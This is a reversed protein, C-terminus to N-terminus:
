LCNETKMEQQIDALIADRICRMFKIDARPIYSAENNIYNVMMIINKTTLWNRNKNLWHKLIMIKVVSSYKDGSYIIYQVEYINLTSYEHIYPDEYNEYPLNMNYYQQIQSMMMCLSNKTIKSFCPLKNTMRFILFSFQPTVRDNIFSLLKESEESIGLFDLTMEVQIIYQITLTSISIFSEDQLINIIDCLIDKNIFDPVPLPDDSNDKVDCINSLLSSKQVLIDPCLIKEGNTLLLLITERELM